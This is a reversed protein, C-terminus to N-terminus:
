PAKKRVLTSWFNSIVNEDQVIPGRLLKLQIIMGNIKLYKLIWPGNSDGFRPGYLELSFLCMESPNKNCTASLFVPGGQTASNRSTTAKEPDGLLTGRVGLDKKQLGFNFM